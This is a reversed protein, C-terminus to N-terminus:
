RGNRGTKDTGPPTPSATAELAALLRKEADPADAHERDLSALAKGVRERLEEALSLHQWLPVSAVTLAVGLTADDGLSFAWDLAARTDDIHRSFAALREAPTTGTAEAQTLVSRCYEAHRRAITEFEGSEILKQLAYSRTTKLLRYLTTAGSVDVTVLSKMVLNALGDIDAEARSPGAAAVAGAADLTFAGAFVALRRLVGREGESLLQYSWDLTARLTRHRPLATRQGGTLIGLHDDLRLALGEIGLMATRAAALEIALPIGDLRRCIAAITQGTQGDVPFDSGAGRARAVFLQVAGAQLLDDLARTEEAPLALPPVRYVFEGAARLPERSTVLVRVGGGARLLSEAMRAAADILHECNDLVILMNKEGLALASADGSRPDCSEDPALVAAVTDRVLDPDSLPALEAIRVGDPHRALMLRAAEQALRTKGIGGAGTLTVLRHTAVLDCVMALDAERGILESTPAPLNTPPGDGQAPSAAAAEERPRAIATSGSKELVAADGSFQYGRGAVTKIHERHPGLAKRLASIQAQLANEEVIAESWVRSLIEDKSVVKGRAEVLVSLIDFARGGIRVAAGDVILERRHPLLQLRSSRLPRQDEDVWHM